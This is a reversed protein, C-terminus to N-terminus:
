RSSTCARRGRRGARRRCRRARPRSAMAEGHDLAREALREAHDAAIDGADRAIQSKMRLKAEPKMKVVESGGASAAPASALMRCRFTLVASRSRAGPDRRAAARAARRLGADGCRRFGLWM